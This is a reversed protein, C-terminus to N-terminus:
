STIVRLALLQSQRRLIAVTLVLLVCFIGFIIALHLVDPQMDHMLVGRYADVLFAIPNAWLILQFKQPDAIQSVDWFIGSVFMLFVMGLAVIRALDRIFCTLYAILLSCAVILIYNVFIIPALWVWSLNPPYGSLALFVFLLFFVASQKYVGEQVTALPFLSKPVNIKGILSKARLISEASKNVTQSFWVFPLKGCMLFVLFNDIQTNLILGFVLYFVAVYLLPEFVWWIYGLFYRSADARLAMIAQINVLSAFQSLSM